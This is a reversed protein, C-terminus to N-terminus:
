LDELSPVTVIHQAFWAAFAGWGMLFAARGAPTDVRVVLRVVESLTGGSRARIEHVEYAIGAGFLTAWVAERPVRM